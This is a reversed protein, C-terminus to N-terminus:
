FKWDTIVEPELKLLMCTTEAFMEGTFVCYYLEEEYHLDLELEVELKPIINPAATPPATATIILIITTIIQIRLCLYDKFSPYYFFLPDVLSPSSSIACDAM